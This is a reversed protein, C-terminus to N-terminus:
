DRAGSENPARKKGRMQALVADWQAMVAAEGFRERVDLAAAAMAHRRPEDDLLAAIAEGLAEPTNERSIVGDLGPRVIDRAGYRFDYCAVPVGHAMAELMVMPMGEWLSSMAFIRAAGYWDSMNGVRGPLSVKDALGLSGALDAMSQRQPGDGLIVLHAEPRGKSVSAFARILDGFNKAEVFRGASLVMTRGDPVVEEVALRPEGDVGPWRVANPIVQVTVRGVRQRLADAAGEALTTLLNLRRYASFRIANWFRGQVAHDPHNHECGILPWPQGISALATEIVMNGQVAVVLDPRNSRLARRLRLLRDLMGAGGVRLPKPESLSQLQVRQDPSYEVESLPTMTTAIVEHGRAVWADALNVAVREAGGGRLSYCVLNIRM